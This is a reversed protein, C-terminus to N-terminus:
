GSNIAKAKNIWTDKDEKSLERWLKAVQSFVETPKPTENGSKELVEKASTRMEKAYVQYGSLRRTKKPEESKEKKVKKKPKEIEINSMVTSMQKEMEEVRAALLEVTSSM